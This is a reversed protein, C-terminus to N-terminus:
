AVLAATCLCLVIMCLLNYTVRGACKENAGLKLNLVVGRRTM